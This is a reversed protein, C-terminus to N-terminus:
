FLLFFFLLFKVQFQTIYFGEGLAKFRDTPKVSPHRPFYPVGMNVLARVRDPRFLCMHWAVNAGWDHGVVFVQVMCSFM